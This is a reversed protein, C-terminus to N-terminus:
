SMPPTGLAESHLVLYIKNYSKVYVPLIYSLNNILCLNNVIAAM